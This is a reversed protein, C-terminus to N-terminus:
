HLVSNKRTIIYQKIISCTFPYTASSKAVSKKMNFIM